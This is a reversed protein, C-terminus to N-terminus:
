DDNAPANVRPGVAVAAFELGSDDDVIARLARLDANSPDLWAEHHRPALVAPMRHHIFTLASTAPRTVIACSAIQSEDPAPPQWIGAMAFPAREKQGIFYPLSRKGTRQWEYFGDALFLCRRARFASKFMAKTALSEARVMIVPRPSSARPLDMGWRMLALEPREGSTRLLVWVGQSPAINFRPELVPRRDVISFEDIVREPDSMTYRGCM